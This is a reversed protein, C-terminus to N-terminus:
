LVELYRAMWYPLILDIGAEEVDGGAGGSLLFPSRQWLFDTAPREAVPIADCARNDGCAAYRDSLDVWINRRPRRLWELMLEVTRGDREADPGRLWRDILAFHANDHAAVTGWLDLWVGQWVNGYFTSDELRILHLLNIADLNFKFYSGHPDTTELGIPVSVLLGLRDRYSAYTSAFRGSNVQRGIALFALQQDPRQLFTTSITGDPMFLTWDNALLHELLRTVIAAAPERITAQPFMEWVLSLGFFVGSYQDRSTNGHWLHEVGDITGAFLHDPNSERLAPEWASGLPVTARALLGRGTVDVLRQLGVLTRRVQRKAKGSGTVRYRLAEAALYHGTWIASDGSQTFGIVRNSTPSEFRPDFITGYPLHRRKIVRHVKKARRELRESPGAAAAGVSAPLTVTTAVLLALLV